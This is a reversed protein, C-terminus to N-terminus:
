GYIIDNFLAFQLISDCIDADMDSTDFILLERNEKICFKIYRNLGRMFRKLDLFYKKEDAEIILTQENTIYEDYRKGPLCNICSVGDIWYNSGGEFCTCIVDEVYQNTINFPVTVKGVIKVENSM